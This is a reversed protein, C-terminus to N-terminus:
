HPTHSIRALRTSIIQEIIWGEWSAGVWPQALLDAQTGYGLLAHLLGTDRWYIKPAKTLRKPFNNAFFPPLRRILFVGELYDLYSQVTHYSIGLSQGLQSYNLSTANLAATMKLLRETDAPKAPLGWHPLDRQVM